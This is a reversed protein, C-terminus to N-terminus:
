GEERPLYGAGEYWECGIFRRYQEDILADEEGSPATEGRLTFREYARTLVRPSRGGWPLSPDLGQSVRLEDLRARGAPTLTM